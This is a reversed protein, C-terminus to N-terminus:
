LWGSFLEAPALRASKHGNAYARCYIERFETIFEGMEPLYNLRMLVKSPDIYDANGVADNEFLDRWMMKVLWLRNARRRDVEEAPCGAREALDWTAPLHELDLM